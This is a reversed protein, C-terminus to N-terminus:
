LNRARGRGRQVGSVENSVSRAGREGVERRHSIGRGGRGCLCSKKIEAIIAERAMALAKELAHGGEHSAYTDFCDVVADSLLVRTTEFM